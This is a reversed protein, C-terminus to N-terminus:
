EHIKEEMAVAKSSVYEGKTSCKIDIKFVPPIDVRKITNKYKCIDAIQCGNCPMMREWETQLRSEREEKTETKSDYRIAM